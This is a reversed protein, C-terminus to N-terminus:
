RIQLVHFDHHIETYEIYCLRIVSVLCLRLIKLEVLHVLVEHCELRMDLGQVRSHRKRYICVVDTLFDEPIVQHPCSLLGDDSIIQYAAEQM